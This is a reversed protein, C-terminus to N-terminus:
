VGSNLSYILAMKFGGHSVWVCIRCGKSPAITRFWERRSVAIPPAGIQAQSGSPQEEIREAM